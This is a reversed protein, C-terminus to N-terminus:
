QNLPITMLIEIVNKVSVSFLGLIWIYVCFILCVLCFSCLWLCWIEEDWIISCLWLPLSVRSSLYFCVCLGTSYLLLGLSLGVYSHVDLKQCNNKRHVLLSTRCFQKDVYLVIFNYRDKKGQVFILEFQILSRLKFSFVHFDSYSFMLSVNWSIPVHLLDRLLVGSVCSTASLISM